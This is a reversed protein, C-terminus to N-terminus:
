ASIEACRRKQIKWKINYILIGSYVVVQSYGRSYTFVNTAVDVVSDCEGYGQTLEYERRFFLLWYHCDALFLYNVGMWGGGLGGCGVCGGCCTNHQWSDRAWGGGDWGVVVGVGVVVVALVAVAMVIVVLTLNVALKYGYGLSCLVMCCSNNVLGAVVIRCWYCTWVLSLLVIAVLVVMARAKYVLRVLLVIGYCNYYAIPQYQLSYMLLLKSLAFAICGKVYSTLLSFFFTVCWLCKM